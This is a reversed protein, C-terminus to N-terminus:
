KSCVAVATVDLPVGAPFSHAVELEWSTPRPGTPIPKSEAIVFGFPTAQSAFAASEAGGGIAQYGAPCTATIKVITSPPVTTTSKAVTTNQLYRKDGKAKTLFAAAGSVAPTLVAGAVILAAILGPLSRVIRRTRKM